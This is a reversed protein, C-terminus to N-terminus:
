KLVSCYMLAFKLSKEYILYLCLSIKKLCLPLKFKVSMCIEFINWLKCWYWPLSHVYCWYWPWSHVYILIYQKDLCVYFSWLYHISLTLLLRLSIFMHLLYKAFDMLLLMLLVHVYWFYCTYSLDCHVSVQLYLINCYSRHVSVLFNKLLYSTCFNLIWLINSPLLIFMSLWQVLDYFWVYWWVELGIFVLGLCLIINSACNLMSSVFVFFMITWGTFLSRPM